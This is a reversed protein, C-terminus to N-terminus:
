EHDSAHVEGQLEEQLQCTLISIQASSAQATHGSPGASAAHWGAYGCLGHRANDSASFSRAHPHLMRSFSICAPSLFSSCLRIRDLLGAACSLMRLDLTLDMCRSGCVLNHQKAPEDALTSRIRCQPLNVDLLCCSCPNMVSHLWTQQQPLARHANCPRRAHAQADLHM